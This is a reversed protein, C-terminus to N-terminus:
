SKLKNFEEKMIDDLNDFLAQKKKADNTAIRKANNKKNNAIRKLEIELDAEKKDKLIDEHIEKLYKVRVNLETSFQKFDSEEPQEKRLNNIKIYLSHKLSLYNYNEKAEKYNLTPLCFSEGAEPIHYDCDNGLNYSRDGMDRPIRHPLVSDSSKKYMKLIRSDYHHNAIYEKGIYMPRQGYHIRKIIPGIKASDDDINNNNRANKYAKIRTYGIRIM